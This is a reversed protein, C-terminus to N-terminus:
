AVFDVIFFMVRKREQFICCFRWAMAEFPRPHQYYILGLEQQTIQPNNQLSVALQPMRFNVNSNVLHLAPIPLM